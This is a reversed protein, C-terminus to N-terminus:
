CDTLSSGSFLSKNLRLEQSISERERNTKDFFDYVWGEVDPDFNFPEGKWYDTNGWDGDYSHEM